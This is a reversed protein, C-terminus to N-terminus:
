AIVLGCGSVRVLLLAGFVEMMHAQSGRERCLWFFVIGDSSVERKGEDDPEETCYM